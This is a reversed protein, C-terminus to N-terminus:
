PSSLWLHRCACVYKDVERNNWIVFVKFGLARRREHDREQGSNLRGDPAKTEIWHLIGRPWMCDRDPVFKRNPSVHKECLAGRAETEAVLYDEVSVEGIM